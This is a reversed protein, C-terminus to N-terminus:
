RCINLVNKFDNRYDKRIMFDVGICFLQKENKYYYEFPIVAYLGVVEDDESKLMTHLSYGTCTNRFQNNFAQISKSHGAFVTEYWRCSQEIEVQSLETTKKCGIQM